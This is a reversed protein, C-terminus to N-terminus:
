MNKLQQIHKLFHTADEYGSGNLSKAHIHLSVQNQMAQAM